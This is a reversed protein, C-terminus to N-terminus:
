EPIQDHCGSGEQNRYPCQKCGNKLATLHRELLSIYGEAWAAEEAFFKTLGDPFIDCETGDPM